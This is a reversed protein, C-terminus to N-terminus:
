AIKQVVRAEDVEIQLEHIADGREGRSPQANEDPEDIPVRRVDAFPQEIGDCETVRAPDGAPTVLRKQRRIVDEVLVAVELGRRGDRRELEGSAPKAYRNAFVDPVVAVEPRLPQIVAIGHALEGILAGVHEDVDGGTRETESLRRKPPLHDPLF